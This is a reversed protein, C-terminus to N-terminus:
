ESPLNSVQLDPHKSDTHTSARIIGGRWDWDNVKSLKFKNAGGGSVSLFRKGVVEDRIKAM